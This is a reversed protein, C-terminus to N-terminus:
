NAGEEEGLWGKSALRAMNHGYEDDDEDDGDNTIIGKFSEKDYQSWRKERWCWCESYWLARPLKVKEDDGSGLNDDEHAGRMEQARGFFTLSDFENM